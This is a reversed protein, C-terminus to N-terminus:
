GGATMCQSSADDVLVFDREDFVMPLREDQLHVMVGNRAKVATIVGRMGDFWSPEFIKGCLCSPRSRYRDVMMVRDGVRM